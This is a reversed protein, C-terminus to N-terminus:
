RMRPKGGTSIEITKQKEKPVLQGKRKEVKIKIYDLGIENIVGQMSEGKGPTWSILMGVTLKEVNFKHGYKILIIKARRHLDIDFINKGVVTLIYLGIAIGSISFLITFIKGLQTEPVFDGYGLTTITVASFYISDVFSWGELNSYIIGGALIVLFFVVLAVGMKHLSM